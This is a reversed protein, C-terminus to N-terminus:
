YKGQVEKVQWVKEQWNGAMKEAVGKAELKPNDTIRGSIEKVQGKLEHFTGEAWKM